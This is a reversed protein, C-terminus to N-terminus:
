SKARMAAMVAKHTKKLANADTKFTSQEAWMGKIRGGVRIFLLLLGIGFSGIISHLILPPITYTIAVLFSQVSMFLVISALYVFLAVVYSNARLCAKNLIDDWSKKVEAIGPNKDADCLDMKLIDNKIIQIDNKHNTDIYQCFVSLASAVIM